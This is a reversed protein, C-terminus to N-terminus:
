FLGKFIARFPFKLYDYLPFLLASLQLTTLQLQLMMFLADAQESGEYGNGEYEGNGQIPVDVELIV